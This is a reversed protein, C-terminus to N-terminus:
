ELNTKQLIWVIGPPASFFKASRWISRFTEASYSLPTPSFWYSCSCFLVRRLVVLTHCFSCSWHLRQPKSVAPSSDQNKWKGANQGQFVWEKERHGVKRMHFLTQHSLRWGTPVSPSWAHLHNACSRCITLAWYINARPKICLCSDPLKYLLVIPFYIKLLNQSYLQFISPNNIIYM